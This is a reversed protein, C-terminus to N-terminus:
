AIAPRGSIEELRPVTLPEWYIIEAIIQATGSAVSVGTGAGTTGNDVYIQYTLNGSLAASQTAASSQDFPPIAFVYPLGQPNAATTYTGSAAVASRVYATSGGANFTQTGNNSVANGLKISDGNTGILGPPVRLGLHCLRAGTPIVPITTDPRGPQNSRIKLPLVTQLVTNVDAVAVINTYRGNVTPTVYIGTTKNIINGPLLVQSM